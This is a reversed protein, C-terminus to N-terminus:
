KKEKKGLICATFIAMSFLLTFSLTIELGTMEGGM